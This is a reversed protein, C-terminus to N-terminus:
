RGRYLEAMAYLAAVFKPDSTYLGHSLSNEATTEITFVAEKLDCVWAQLTMTCDTELTTAPGFLESALRTQTDVLMEHFNTLELQNEDVTPYQQALFLRLLSKNARRWAAWGPADMGFQDHMRQLRQGETASVLTVSVGSHIRSAIARRYEDWLLPASFYAPTPNANVVLIDHEAREIVETVMPLYHPFPAVYRTSLSEAIGELRAEHSRLGRSQQKAQHVQYIALGLAAITLLLGALTLSAATDFNWASSLQILM